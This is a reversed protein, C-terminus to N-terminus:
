QGRRQTMIAAVGRSVVRCRAVSAVSVVSRRAGAEASRRSSENGSHGRAHWVCTAVRAPCPPGFVVAMYFLM